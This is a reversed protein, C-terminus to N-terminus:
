AQSEEDQCRMAATFHQPKSNIKAVVLCIFPVFNYDHDRQYNSCKVAASFFIIEFIEADVM